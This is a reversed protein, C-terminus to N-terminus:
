RVEDDDAAAVAVEEVVVFVRPLLGGVDFSCRSCFFSGKETLTM